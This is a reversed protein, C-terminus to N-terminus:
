VDRHPQELVTGQVIHQPVQIARPIALVEVPHDALVQAVGNGPPRLVAGVALHDRVGHRGVHIRRVRVRTLLVEMGVGWSNLMMSSWLRNLIPSAAAAGQFAGGGPVTEVLSPNTM